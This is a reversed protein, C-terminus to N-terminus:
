PSTPTPAALTPAAPFDDTLKGEKNWALIRGARTGALIRGDAADVAMAYLASAAEGIRKEQGSESSQAGTHSKLGTYKMVAGDELVAFVAAGGEGWHLANFASAKSYFAVVNERTAVNWVKLQRDAGGTVLQSGDPHFALSLVQSSHGELRASEKGTAPDWLKVLKDGGATALHKGDGSLAMAFITDDHATWSRVMEGSVPDLERVVGREAVLGDAILVRGPGPGALIATIRDTLGSVIERKQTLPEAEWVVVRRFAGTVLTKGDPMWAISQVPDLHAHAKTKYVLGKAGQSFMILEHGCGVALHQGDPSLAMAMVPRYSPPLASLVVPRPPAQGALAAADWPIGQRVWDGLLTIQAQTLQKKPPMHPDASASLSQILPSEEPKGAVVAVGEDGGALLTERSSLALGGKRKEENHCSLCHTKLLRMALAADVAGAMVPRPLLFSAAVLCFRFPLIVFPSRAM